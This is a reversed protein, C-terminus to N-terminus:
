KKGGTWDFVIGLFTKDKNLIVEYMEPGQTYPVKHTILPEIDIKKESMLKLTNEMRSRTWGAVFYATQERQQLLAMDAWANGPTFGSYVIQGKAYELMDMYEKQCSETQVTDLIAAPFVDGTIEMVTKKVDAESDNNIIFDASYKKALKLRIDRHGIMIVKAGRARASQAACQGIMGDGYVIVWDGEKLAPRSAANYGVQAVVLASANIDRVKEPIKHLENQHTNAQMVHSGWFPKIDTDWCGTTAFVKDGEKWKKVESGVATIIGTRQYGPICPYPTPAWTFKDTFCWGETGSSVTSFETRIQVEEPGPPPMEFERLESKGPSIFVIGITKM